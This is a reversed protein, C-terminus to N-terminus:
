QAEMLPLWLSVQVLGPECPDPWRCSQPMNGAMALGQWMLLLALLILLVFSLRTM